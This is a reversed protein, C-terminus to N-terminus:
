GIKNSCPFAGPFNAAKRTEYTVKDATHRENAPKLHDPRVQGERAWHDHYQILDPRQWFVGQLKAVDQLEGDCFYHYYDENYPGPMRAAYERGIWPCISADDILGYRDGTPHMLGMTGNFYNIFESGLEQATHSLDPTLDNGAIIIIDYNTKKCLYNAAYPFGKWKDIHFLQDIHQQEDCSYDVLVATGYGQAKWVAATDNAEIVDVSPWAALVNM